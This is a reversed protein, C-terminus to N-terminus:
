RELQNLEGEIMLPKSRGRYYLEEDTLKFYDFHFAESTEGMNESLTKYLDKGYDKLLRNRQSEERFSTEQEHEPEWTSGGGPTLPINGGMPEEPRSEHDGFPDVDIDIM